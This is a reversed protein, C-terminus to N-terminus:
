AGLRRPGQAPTGQPNEAHAAAGPGGHQGAVPGAATRQEVPARELHHRSTQTLTRLSWGQAWTLRASNRFAKSTRQGM